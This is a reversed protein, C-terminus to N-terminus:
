KQESQELTQALIKSSQILTDRQTLKYTQDFKPTLGRSSELALPQSKPKCSLARKYARKYLEMGNETGVIAPAVEGPQTKKSTEYFSLLTELDKNGNPQFIEM